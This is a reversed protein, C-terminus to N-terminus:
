ARVRNEKVAEIKEPITQKPQAPLAHRCFNIPLELCVPKTQGNGYPYIETVKGEYQFNRAAAWLRERAIEAM